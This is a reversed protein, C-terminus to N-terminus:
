LRWIIEGKRHVSRIRHVPIFLEKGGEHVVIFNKEIHKIDKANLKVLKKKVNDFYHIRFEHRKPHNHVYHVTNIVGKEIGGLPDFERFIAGSFTLMALGLFTDVWANELIPLYGVGEWIGKWLMIIAVAMYLSLLFHKDTERMKM